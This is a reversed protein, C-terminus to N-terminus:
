GLPGDYLGLQWRRVRLKHIELPIGIRAKIPMQEAYERCVNVRRGKARRRVIFGPMPVRCSRHRM